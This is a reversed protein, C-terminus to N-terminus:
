NNIREGLDMAMAKFAEWTEEGTPIIQEPPLVFGYSGTDRLEVTYSYKVNAKAKAWDDSGGAAPYLANASSGITYQKGHVATLAKVAVKAARVLEDYDEPLEPGYGWPTLWYQGYSHFTLYVLFDRTQLFDALNKMEPESFAKDGKYVESCPNSSTGDGGWVFDWNRNGDVGKCSDGDNDNRTKRWYREDTHSFEYGDPNLVPLVYYEFHDLLDKSNPSLLENLIYTVTAPSIWERAHIGGDILIAKDAKDKQGPKFVHAVIMDRGEASKGINILEVKDSNASAVEQLWSNIEDHRHYSVWDM